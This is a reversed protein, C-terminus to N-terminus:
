STRSHLSTFDSARDAIGLADDNGLTLPLGVSSLIQHLSHLHMVASEHQRSGCPSLSQSILTRNRKEETLLPTLLHPKPSSLLPIWPFYISHVFPMHQVAASNRSITSTVHVQPSNVKCFSTRVRSTYRYRCRFDPGCMYVSLIWDRSSQHRVGRLCSKFGIRARALM